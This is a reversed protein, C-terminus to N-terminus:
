AAAIVLEPTNDEPKHWVFEAVMDPFQAVHWYVSINLLATFINSVILGWIASQNRILFTCNRKYIEVFQVFFSAGRNEAFELFNTDIDLYRQERMAIGANIHPRLYHNYKQVM